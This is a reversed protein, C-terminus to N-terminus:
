IITLHVNLHTSESLAQAFMLFCSRSDKGTVERRGSTAGPPVSLFGRSDMEVTEVTEVMEVTDVTEM